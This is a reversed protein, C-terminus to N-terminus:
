RTGIWPNARCSLQRGGPRDGAGRPPIDAPAPPPAGLQAPDLVEADCGAAGAVRARATGLLAQQRQELEALKGQEEATFPNTSFDKLRALAAEFAEREPTFNTMIKQTSPPRDPQGAPPPPAASLETAGLTGAPLATAVLAGAARLDARGRCPGCARGARGAV